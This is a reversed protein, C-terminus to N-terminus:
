LLFNFYNTSMLFGDTYDIWAYKQVQQWFQERHNVKRINKKERGSVWKWTESECPNNRNIVQLCM